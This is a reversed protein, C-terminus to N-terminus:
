KKFRSDTLLKLAPQAADNGQRALRMIDELTTDLLEGPFRQNVSGKCEQAIIQQATQSLRALTSEALAEQNESLSETAILDRLAAANGTAIAAMLRAQLTSLGTFDKFDIPDSLAYAYLNDPAVFLPSKTSTWRWVGRDYTADSSAIPDSELYRGTAADYTRYFNYHMGTEADYIQGPFRLDLTFHNGTGSPDTNPTALGFPEYTATWIKAPASGDTPSNTVVLPKGLYDTHVWALSVAPGGCAAGVVALALLAGGAEAARPRQSAAAGTLEGTM